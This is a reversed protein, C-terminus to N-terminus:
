EALRMMVVTRITIKFMFLSIQLLCGLNFSLRGYVIIDFPADLGGLDIGNLTFPQWIPELSKKVVESRYLTV